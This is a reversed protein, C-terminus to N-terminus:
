SRSIIPASDLRPRERLIEEYYEIKLYADELQQKMKLVEDYNEQKLVTINKKLLDNEATIAKLEGKKNNKEYEYMRKMRNYKDKYYVAIDKDSPRSM